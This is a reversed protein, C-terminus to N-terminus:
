CSTKIRLYEASYEKFKEFDSRGVGTQEQVHQVCPEGKLIDRFREGRHSAGFTMIESSMRSTHVFEEANTMTSILRQSIIFRELMLYTKTVPMILYELKSYQAKFGRAELKLVQIVKDEPTMHAMMSGIFEKILKIHDDTTKSVDSPKRVSEFITSRTWDNSMVPHYQHTFDKVEETIEEMHMGSSAGGSADMIGCLTGSEGPCGLQVRQHSRCSMTCRVGTAYKVHWFGCLKANVNQSVMVLTFVKIEGLVTILSFDKIERIVQVGTVGYGSSM